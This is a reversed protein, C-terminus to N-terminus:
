RALMVGRAADFGLLPSGRIGGRDAQVADLVWLDREAGGAEEGGERMAGRASERRAAIEPRWMTAYRMIRERNSRRHGEMGLHTMRASSDERGSVDWDDALMKRGGERDAKAPDEPGDVPTGHAVHYPAGLAWAFLRDGTLPTKSRRM